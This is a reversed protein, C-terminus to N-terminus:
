DFPHYSTADITQLCLLGQLSTRCGQALRVLVFAVLINFSFLCNYILFGIVHMSCPFINVPTYIAVWFKRARAILELLCSFEQVVVLSLLFEKNPLTCMRGFGILLLGGLSVVHDVTQLFRVGDQSSSWHAGVILHLVHKM